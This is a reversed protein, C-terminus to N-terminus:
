RENVGNYQIGLLPNGSQAIISSIRGVDEGVNIRTGIKPLVSFESRKLIVMGDAGDTVGGLNLQPAIEVEAPLAIHAVGLIDVQVSLHTLHEEFADLIFSTLQSV